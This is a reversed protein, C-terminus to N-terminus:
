AGVPQLPGNAATLAAWLPHKKWAESVNTVIQKPAITHREHKSRRPDKEDFAAFDIVVEQDTVNQLQM